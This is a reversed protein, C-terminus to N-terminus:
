SLDLSEAATKASDLITLLSDYTLDNQSVSLLSGGASDRSLDWSSGDSSLTSSYTAKRSANYFTVVPFDNSDFTLQTPGATKDSSVVSTYWDTDRYAYVVQGTDADRFTIQAQTGLDEPGNHLNLDIDQAPDNEVVAIYWTASPDTVDLRAYKLDQNTDDTYALAVTTDYTTFFGDSIAAENVSLSVDSGVSAGDDSGYTGGDV